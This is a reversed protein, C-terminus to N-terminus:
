CAAGGVGRGITVRADRCAAYLLLAETSHAIMTFGLSKFRIAAEITPAYIGLGKGSVERVLRQITEEFAHSTFDGPTGASQSLDLAGVFGVDVGPVALIESARSAAEVGEIQVVVVSDRNLRAYMEATRERYRVMDVLGRNGEPAYKSARVVARAEDVSGVAPVMIGDAGSDLARGILAASNEGVRVISALGALRCGDVLTQITELSFPAHETDLVLFDWGAAGFVSPVRASGFEVVFAGLLLEGRRLAAKFGSRAAGAENTM